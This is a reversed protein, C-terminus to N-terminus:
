ALGSAHDVLRGAGQTRQSRQQVPANAVDSQLTLRRQLRRRARDHERRLPAPAPPWEAAPAPACLPDAARRRRTPSAHVAAGDPMGRSAKAREGSGDEGGAGHGQIEDAILVEGVLGLATRVSREPAVTM